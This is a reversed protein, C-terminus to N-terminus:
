LFACECICVQMVPGAQWTLCVGGGKDLDSARGPQNFLPLLLSVPGINPISDLSVVCTGPCVSLFTGSARSTM